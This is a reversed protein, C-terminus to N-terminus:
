MRLKKRTVNTSTEKMKERENTVKKKEKMRSKKKEKM